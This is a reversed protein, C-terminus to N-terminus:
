HTRNASETFARGCSPCNHRPAVWSKECICLISGRRPAPLARIGKPPKANPDRWPRNAELTIENDRKQASPQYWTEHDEYSREAPTTKSLLNILQSAATMSECAFHRYGISVIHRTSKAM